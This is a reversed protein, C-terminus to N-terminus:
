ALGSLTGSPRDLSLYGLGIEVFSDLTHRLAALLTRRVARESRAGVGCELCTSFTVGREVFARIHPQM